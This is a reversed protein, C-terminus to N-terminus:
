KPKSWLRVWDAEKPDLFQITEPNYHKKTVHTELESRKDYWGDNCLICVYFGNSM